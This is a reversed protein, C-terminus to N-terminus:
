IRSLTKAYARLPSYSQMKLTWERELLNTKDMKSDTTRSYEICDNLFRTAVTNQDSDFKNSMAEELNDFYTNLVKGKKTVTMMWSSQKPYKNFESDYRFSVGMDGLNIFVYKHQHSQRASAANALITATLASNKTTSLTLIADDDSASNADLDIKNDFFANLRERNEIVYDFIQATSPM